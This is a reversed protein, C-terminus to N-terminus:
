QQVEAVTGNFLSMAKVIGDNLWCEIQDCARILVKELWETEAAGFRSLVYDTIERAAGPGRGIGLRLRGFDQTGLHQLISELGHHGATGGQPRLRIEGLPLDADDVVVVFRELPVHYYDLLPGIAEGSANMFTEPKCLLVQRGQRGARALQAKFKREQSWDARWRAALRDLALFGANHRTLAYQRGPNGLGAILYLEPM